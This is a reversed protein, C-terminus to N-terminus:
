GAESVCLSVWRKGEGTPPTLIGEDIAERYSCTILSYFHNSLLNGMQWELGEPVHPAYHGWVVDKARLFLDEVRASFEAALRYLTDLGERRTFFFTPRYGGEERLFLNKELLLSFLYKEEEGLRDPDVQGTLIKGGLALAADPVEFYPSSDTGGWAHFFGQAFVGDIKHIPGDYPHYDKWEAQMRSPDEEYGYAIWKGGMPRLPIDEYKVHIGHKYKMRELAAATIMHIYVWLLREWAFGAANLGEGTLVDRKEELFAMLRRYYDPFVAERVRDIVAISEGAPLIVFDTQYRDGRKRLLQNEVLCEVEDEVYPASIGLEVCLEELSVPRKYAALLINQASKRKGCVMPESNAGPLGTCSLLLRGPRYSKEGYERMLDMGKKIANRADHLWWKVTGVSRGLEAAIADCSLGDFYHLIVTQRYNGTMHALERRLLSIEERRIYEDEVDTGDGLWDPLYVTANRKKRRLANYFLHNSVSWVFANLNDIPKDGRIARLVELCIEQSLDEADEVTNMKLRCFGYIKPIMETEFARLLADKETM